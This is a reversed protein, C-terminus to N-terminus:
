VRLSFDLLRRFQKGQECSGACCVGERDAPSRAGALTYDALREARTCEPESAGGGDKSSCKAVREFPTWSPGCMQKEEEEEKTLRMTEMVAPHTPSGSVAATPENIM